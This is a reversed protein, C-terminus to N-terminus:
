HEPLPALDQRLQRGKDIAFTYQEHWQPYFIFNIDRSFHIQSLSKCLKIPLLEIEELPVNIFADQVNIIITFV